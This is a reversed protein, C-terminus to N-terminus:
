FWKCVIVDYFIWSWAVDRVKVNNNASYIKGIEEEEYSLNDFNICVEM